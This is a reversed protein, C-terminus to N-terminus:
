KSDDNWDALLFGQRVSPTLPHVNKHGNSDCVTLLRKGSKNLIDIVATEREKLMNTTLSGWAIIIESSLKIYKKIISDTEKDYMDKCSRDVASYLNVAYYGGYGLRYLNNTIINNTLEIYIGDAQGSNKTFFMVTPKEKDWLRSLLYRHSKDENYICENEIKNKESIM